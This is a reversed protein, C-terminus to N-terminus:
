LYRGTDSDRGREDYKQHCSGCAALYDQPRPSYRLGDRSGGAEIKVVSPDRKLAWQFRGDTKGCLECQAPVGRERYLRSHASRYTIDDGKWQSSQERTLGSTDIVHMRGEAHALRLAEARKAVTEPSQTKGKWYALKPNPRGRMAAYQCARKCYIRKLWDSRSVNSPKAFIEGCTACAKEM